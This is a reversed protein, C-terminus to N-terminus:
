LLERLKHIDLLRISGRKVEVLGDADFRKLMRAVVERASSVRQAIQEHTMRLTASGTRDYEAVLFSALRRDFGKFLIEQMTWMVTSFRQTILEYMFCRVYINQETLQSFVGTNIVLLECDKEACILTEFTLQRIACSASFICPDGDYLHFLTIERGEDSLIFTRLEGSILYIMGLCDNAGGHIFEGKQYNRITTGSQVTAKEAETLKEWFPLLQIMEDTINM